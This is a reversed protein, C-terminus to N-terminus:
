GFKLYFDTKYDEKFKASGKSKIKYIASNISKIICADSWFQISSIQLGFCTSCFFGIKGEKLSANFSKNFINEFELKRFSEDLEEKAVPDEIKISFYIKYQVFKIV